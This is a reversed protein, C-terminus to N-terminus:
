RREKGRSPSSARPPERQVEPRRVVREPNQSRFEQQPRREREVSESRREIKPEPRYEERNGRGAEKPSQPDYRRYERPPEPTESRQTKGREERVQPQREIRRDAEKSRSSERDIQPTQDERYVPRLPRVEDARRLDRGTAKADERSRTGIHRTDLSVKREAERLRAPREVAAEATQREIRPRYIEIRERGDARVLRDVQRDAVDVIAAKEVRLHGRREVYERAPGRTVIRDGDSRVSGAGRTRGIYRRNSETRYVYRNVNSSTVYGCDVFSWYYHPTVWRTTYHIGFHVSFVAYPSLPAWGFYGGGYRWEVWAPAWDYGPIWLWGYFDDYYWRGYHYAAWGWPEDSSWYWGADTWAWRGVTYPRWGHVVRLPRWAYVAPGVAIWDGYASMSSYFIGFSVGVSGHPLYHANSSYPAALLIGIALLIKKM